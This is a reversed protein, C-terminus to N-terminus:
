RLANPREEIVHRKAFFKLLEGRARHVWTKVTGIPRDMAAAIEEYSLQQQHFLLFAERHERRMSDLGLDLEEILRRHVNPNPRSDQLDDALSERVPAKARKAIATRCRNGAIAFLWPEFDRKRDWSRLHRLARVLTEQAADEADQWQGLMSLCLGFVPGRYRDVLSRMAREDGALCLDVLSFISESQPVSELRYTNEVITPNTRTAPALDIKPTSFVRFDQNRTSHCVISAKSV